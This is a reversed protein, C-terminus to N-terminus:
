KRCLLRFDHDTPSTLDKLEETMKRNFHIFDIFACVRKILSYEILKCRKSFKFSLVTREPAIHMSHLLLQSYWLTQPEKTTKTKKCCRLWREHYGSQMCRCFPGIRRICPFSRLRVIWEKSNCHKGNMKQTKPLFIRRCLGCISPNFNNFPCFYM